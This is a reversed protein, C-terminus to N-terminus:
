LELTSLFLEFLIESIFFNIILESVLVKDIVKSFLKEFGEFSKFFLAVNNDFVAFFSLNSEGIGENPILNSLFFEHFECSSFFCGEHGV